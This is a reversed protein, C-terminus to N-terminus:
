VSLQPGDPWRRKALLKRLEITKDVAEGGRTKRIHELWPKWEPREDHIIYYGKPDVDPAGYVVDFLAGSLYVSLRPIKENRRRAHLLFVKACDVARQRRLEPLAFWEREVVDRKGHKDMPWIALLKDIGFDGSGGTGPPQPSNQLTLEKYTDPKETDPLGPGPNEPRPSVVDTNEPHPSEVHPKEPPPELPLQGPVPEDFITYNTASLRGDATRTRERELYRAKELESLLKYAKDRGIEGTRMIDPITVQWDDPKALLYVLLGRAEFSLREDNAVANPVIAFNDRRKRTIITM